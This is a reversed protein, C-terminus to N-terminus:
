SGKAMQLTNIIKHAFMVKICNVSVNELRELSKIAGVIKQGDEKLILCLDLSDVKDNQDLYQLIKEPLTQAMTTITHSTHQNLNNRFESVVYNFNIGIRHQM